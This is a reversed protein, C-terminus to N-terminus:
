DGGGYRFHRRQEFDFLVDEVEPGRGINHVILPRGSDARSSIVMGIHTLGGPLNWTVLDGVEYDAADETVPIEAGHRSFFTELNPVRRHDINADSRSLGWLAPYHPFAELMDEHVLQQLDVGVARYARVILDTCVGTDLPVDGGPYALQQYSGDYRVESYTRAVAAAVLSDVFAPNEAYSVEAASILALCGVLGFLIERM